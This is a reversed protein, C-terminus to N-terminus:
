DAASYSAVTESIMKILKFNRKQQAAQKAKELERESFDLSSLLVEVVRLRELTASDVLAEGGSTACSEGAAPCVQKTSSLVRSFHHLVMATLKAAAQDSRDPSLSSQFTSATLKLLNNVDDPDVSEVQVKGLLVLLVKAAEEIRQEGADLLSQLFLHLLKVPLRQEGHVFAEVIASPVHQSLVFHLSKAKERESVISLLYEVTDLRASLAAMELCSIGNSNRLSYNAAAEEVLYKLVELHGREAAVFAPTVHIEFLGLETAAGAQVLSSVTELWNNQAALYLATAGYLPDKKARKNVEAGARLLLDVCEVFGHKAAFMLATAGTSAVGRDVIESSNFHRLLQKVLKPRCTQAAAHLPTMEVSAHFSATCGASDRRLLVSTSKSDGLEVAQALASPTSVDGKAGAKLLMSVIKHKRKVIAHSLATQGSRTILNVDAAERDYSLIAKVATSYGNGAAAYLAFAGDIPVQANIKADSAATLLAMAIAKHKYQLATVLPTAGQMSGLQRAGLALLKEVVELHGNEAAAHLATAGNGVETNKPAYWMQADASKERVAVHNSYSSKAMAYDIDGPAFEVLLEVMRVFGRQAALYLPTTDEMLLLNTRAGCDRLLVAAAGVQNADAASHLPTGGNVKRSDANAGAACLRRIVAEHGMEAAFHLATSGAYTHARDLDVQALILAEVIDQNGSTAAMMLPTVGNKGVAEVNAGLGILCNVAAVNGVIIASHLPTTGDVDKAVDIDLLLQDNDLLQQINACDGAM